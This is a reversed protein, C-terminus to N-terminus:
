LLFPYLFLGIIGELERVGVCMSVRIAEEALSFFGVIEVEGRLRASGGNDGLLKIRIFDQSFFSM